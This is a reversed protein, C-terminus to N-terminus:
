ACCLEQKRIAHWSERVLFAAIVLGAIPDAQWLDFAFHLGVGTVLAVSLFMCALTQKADATLSRSELERGLRRKFYFLPPMVVLSICAIVLGVVSREPPERLYLKIVSEYAVYLGL